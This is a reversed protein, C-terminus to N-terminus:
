WAPPLIATRDLRAIRVENQGLSARRHVRRADRDHRADALRGGHRGARVM